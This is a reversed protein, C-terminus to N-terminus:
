GMLESILDEVVSARHELYEERNKFKKPEPQKAKSAPAGPSAGQRGSGTVPKTPKVPTETAKRMEEVTFGSNSIFQRALSKVGEADLAALDKAHQLVHNQIMRQYRDQLRLPELVSKITFVAYQEVVRDLRADKAPEITPTTPQQPQQPTQGMSKMVKQYFNSVEADTKALEEMASMFDADLALQAVPNRFKGYRQSFTSRFEQAGSLEARLKSEAEGLEALKSRLQNREQVVQQLRKYPVTKPPGNGHGQVAASEEPQGEAAAETAEESAPEAVEFPDESGLDEGSGLFDALEAADDGEIENGSM